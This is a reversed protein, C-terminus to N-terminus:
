PWEDSKKKLCFVAYSIAVHSSNLRTSKRDVRGSMNRELTHKAIVELFRSHEDGTEDTHIDILKGYKEALDFIYEISRIGDERTFEAQPMGGIVDAGMKIAEVLLEDM